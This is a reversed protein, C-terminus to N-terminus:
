QIGFPINEPILGVQLVMPKGVIKLYKSPMGPLLYTFVM